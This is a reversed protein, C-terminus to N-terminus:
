RWVDPMGSRDDDSGGGMGAGPMQLDEFSLGNSVRWPSNANM